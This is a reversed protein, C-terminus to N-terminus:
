EISKYLIDKVENLNSITNSYKYKSKELGKEYLIGKMGANISGLVDKEYNDGIFICEEPEKNISKLASQFIENQPKSYGVKESICIVDVLAEIKLNKIKKEQYKVSGNTIIGTRINQKKLYMLLTDANDNVKPDESLNNMFYEKFWNENISICFKKNLGEVISKKDAYGNNDLKYLKKQFIEFEIKIELENYIKSCLRVLSEKRDFITDDLDFLIASYDL